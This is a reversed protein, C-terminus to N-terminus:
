REAVAMPEGAVTRHTWLRRARWCRVAVALQAFVAIGVIAYSLVIAPGTYASSATTQRWAPLGLIFNVLFYVSLGVTTAWVARSPRRLAVFLGLALLVMGCWHIWLFATRGDRPPYPLGMALFLAIMAFLLESWRARRLVARSENLPM